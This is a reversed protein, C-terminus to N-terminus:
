VLVLRTGIRRNEKNGQEVVARGFERGNIELVVETNGRSVNSNNALAINMAQVITDLPAEINTGNKQDGLVALFEKNPPIVAGQALRPLSIPSIKGVSVGPIKNILNIAGNILGIARNITREIFSLVGNIGSKVAGGIADGLKTGLGTFKEKITDWLGGFFEGWTAFVNKIATWASSFTEGFWDKVVSFVKKIGNWVGKFFGAWKGAIGKIAEWAGSFDGSLVAKVVSFIGKITEWVASFFSGAFAWVTKIATWASSFFGGLVASVVSFVSKIHEWISTFFPSIASWIEVITDKAGGFQSTVISFASTADEKLGGFFGTIKTWLDEIFGIPDTFLSKLTSLIWDFATALGGIVDSIVNVIGSFVTGVVEVVVSLGAVFNEILYNGIPKLVNEWLVQLIDIITGVLSGVKELMPLVHENMTAGFKEAIDNLVPELYKHYASVLTNLWESLTQTITKILPQLHQYYLNLVITVVGDVLNKITGAVESFIGLLSDLAGRLEDQNDIIPTAILGVIDAGLNSCLEYIGLFANSFIGIINGVLKQGNEDAIASFINAFASWLNGVIASLRSKADFIGVIRDQIFATNESLYKDLGGLLATGISVGISAVSGVIQGLAFTTTSIYTKISNQVEPDSFITKLSNKIGEIATQIGGFDAYQFSKWFGTKFINAIELLKEKLKDWQSTDVISETDSIELRPVSASGTGASGGGGSGGGGGGGGGASSNDTLIQLEDFGALSKKLEKNTGKVADTLGKQNDAAEGIGDAVGGASTGMDSMAGGASVIEKGFFKLVAQLALAAYQFVLTLVKLVPMLVVNVATGWTAKFDEFAANFQSRTLASSQLVTNGYREQAQELIALTLVQKQENGTLDAWARGDAITQFAQTYKLTAQNVYVGLDDIARTNGFIGSQIKTFVEDFTRGTKSAIVATTQLMQNTLQANDAGDAFSSFLNGYSAAAEYAAAKSMGLGQSNANVFEYVAESAKGYIQALRLINSEQKSALKSAENSFKAIQAISFAVAVAKAFKGLTATVGSTASSFSNMGNKGGQLKSKLSNLEKNASNSDIKVTLMISGDSSTAM